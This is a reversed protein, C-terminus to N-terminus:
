DVIFWKEKYTVEFDLGFSTDLLGYRCKDYYFLFFHKASKLHDYCRSTVYPLSL